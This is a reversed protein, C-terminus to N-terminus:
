LRCLRGRRSVARFLWFQWFYRRCFFCVAIMFMTATQSVFPYNNNYFIQEHRLYNSYKRCFYM